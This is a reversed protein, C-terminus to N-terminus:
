MLASLNVTKLPVANSFHYMDTSKDGTPRLIMTGDIAKRKKLDEALGAILERPANLEYGVVCYVKQAVQYLPIADTISPLLCVEEQEPDALGQVFIWNMGGSVMSSGFLQSKSALETLVDKVDVNVFLLGTVQQIPDCSRFRM